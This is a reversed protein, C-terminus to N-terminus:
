FQTNDKIIENILCEYGLKIRNQNHINKEGSDSYYDDIAQSDTTITSIRKNRYLCSIRWHGYNTPNIQLDNKNKEAQKITTKM